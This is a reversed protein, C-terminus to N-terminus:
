RAGDLLCAQKALSVCGEESGGKQSPIDGKWGTKPAEVKGNSNGAM